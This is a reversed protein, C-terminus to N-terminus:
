VSLDNVANNTIQQVSSGDFFYIEWDSGDHGYWAITGNHLSPRFDDGGSNTIQTESTGNWYWIDYFGTNNNFREWAIEVTGSKFSLSPYRDDVNSNKTVQIVKSGDWYYIENDSGDSAYWAIQGNASSPYQHNSFNSTLQSIGEAAASSVSVALVMSIAFISIYKKEM